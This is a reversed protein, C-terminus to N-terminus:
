QNTTRLTADAMAGEWGLSGMAIGLVALSSSASTMAATTITRAFCSSFRRGKLNYVRGLKLLRQLMLIFIFIRKNGFADSAIVLILVVVQIM